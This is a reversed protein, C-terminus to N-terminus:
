PSSRLAGILLSYSDHGGDMSPSHLMGSCCQEAAHRRRERGSQRFPPRRNVTICRPSIFPFHVFTRHLVGGVETEPVRRAGPCGFLLGRASVFCFHRRALLFVPVGLARELLPNGRSGELEFSERRLTIKWLIVGLELAAM